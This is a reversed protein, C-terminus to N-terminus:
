SHLVVSAVEAWERTECGTHRSYRGNEDTGTVGVPLLNILENLSDCMFNTVLHHRFIYIFPSFSLQDYSRDFHKISVATVSNCRMHWWYLFQLWCETNKYQNSEQVKQGRGWDSTGSRIFLQQGLCPTNCMTPHLLPASVPEDAVLSNDCNATLDSSHPIGHRPPFSHSVPSPCTSSM